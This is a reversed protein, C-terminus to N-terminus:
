AKKMSDTSIKLDEDSSPTWNDFKAIHEKLAVNKQTKIEDIINGVISSVHAMDMKGRELLTNFDSTFTSSDTTTFVM